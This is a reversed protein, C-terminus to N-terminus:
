PTDGAGARDAEWERFADVDTKVQRLVALLLGIDDVFGGMVFDPILDVPSLFYILAATILAVSKWPVYPYQKRAYSRLLRAVTLLEELVRGLVGGHRRAKAEVSAVLLETRESDRAIQEAERMPLAPLTTKPENDKSPEM